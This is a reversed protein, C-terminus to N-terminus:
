PSDGSLNPCLLKGTIPFQTIPRVVPWTRPLGQPNWLSHPEFEELYVVTERRLCEQPVLFAPKEVVPQASPPPTQPPQPKTQLVNGCDLSVIPRRTKKDILIDERRKCTREYVEFAGKGDTYEPFLAGNGYQSRCSVRSTKERLYTEIEANTQFLAEGHRMRETNIRERFSEPTVWRSEHVAQILDETNATPRTFAHWREASAPSLGLFALLFVLFQIKTMMM